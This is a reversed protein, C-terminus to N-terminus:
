CTYKKVRLKEKFVKLLIDNKNYFIEFFLNFYLNQIKIKLIDLIEVFKLKKEWFNWFASKKKKLLMM